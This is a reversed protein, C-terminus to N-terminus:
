LGGQHKETIRQAGVEAPQTHLGAIHHHQVGGDAGDSPDDTTGILDMQRQFLRQGTAARQHHVRATRLEVVFDPAAVQGGAFLLEHERM